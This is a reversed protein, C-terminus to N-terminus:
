AHILFDIKYIISLILYFYQLLMRFFKLSSIGGFTFEQLFFKTYHTHQKHFSKLPFNGKTVAYNVFQIVHIMIM